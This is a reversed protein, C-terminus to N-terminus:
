QESAVFLAFRKQCHHLNSGSVNQPSQMAGPCYIGKLKQGLKQKQIEKEQEKKDKETFVDNLGIWFAASKFSWWTDATQTDHQTNCLWYLLEINFTLLKKTGTTDSNLPLTKGINICHNISVHITVSM